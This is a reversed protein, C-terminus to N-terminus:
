RGRLGGRERYFAIAISLAALIAVAILVPLLPSSGGGATSRDTAPRATFPSFSSVPRSESISPKVGATPRHDRDRDAPRPPEDERDPVATDPTTDEEPGPESTEAPVESAPRQERTKKHPTEGQHVPEIDPVSRATGGCCYTVESSTEAHTIAPAPAIALLAVISTVALKTRARM